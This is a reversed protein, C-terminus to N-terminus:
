LNTPQRNQKRWKENIEADSARVYNARLDHPSITRGARYEILGLAAVSEALRLDIPALAWGSRSAVAESSAPRSFDIRQGVAWARLQDEHVHAGEGAWRLDNMSAYREHLMEPSLHGANDLPETEGAPHVQFMQAYLEGRGAPLLAVTARSRGAAHAVVALSSVAVCERKLYVAFAKISALGIRLGTFSGPGNAVAFIVVDDISVGFATMVGTINDLLDTSHSAAPNGPLSTLIASGRALAISGARTATEIALILPEEPLEFGKELYVRNSV